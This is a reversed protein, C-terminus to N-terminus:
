ERVCHLLGARVLYAHMRQLHLAVLRERSHHEQLQLRAGQYALRVVLQLLRPLYILQRVLYPEVHAVPGLSDLAECGGRRM